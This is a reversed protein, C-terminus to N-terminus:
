SRTVAPAGRESQADHTHQNGNNVECETLAPNFLVTRFRVKLRDVETVQQQSNSANHYQDRNCGPQQVVLLDCTHNQADNRQTDHEDETFFGEGHM